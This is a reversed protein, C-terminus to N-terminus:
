IIPEGVALDGADRRPNRMRAVRALAPELNVNWRGLGLADPFQHHIGTHLEADLRASQASTISQPQFGLHREVSVLDIGRDGREFCVEPPDHFELLALENAAIRQRLLLFASDRALQDPKLHAAPADAAIAVFHKEIASRRSPHGAATRRRREALIYSQAVQ